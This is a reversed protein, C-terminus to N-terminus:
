WLSVDTIEITDLLKAKSLLSQQEYYDAFDSAGIGSGNNESRILVYSTTPYEQLMNYLQKIQEPSLLM